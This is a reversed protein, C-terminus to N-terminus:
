CFRIIATWTDKWTTGHLSMMARSSTSSSSHSITRGNSGGGGGCL